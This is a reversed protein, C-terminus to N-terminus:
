KHMNKMNEYEKIYGKIYLKLQEEINDIKDMEYFLDDRIKHLDIVKIARKENTEKKKDKLFVDM